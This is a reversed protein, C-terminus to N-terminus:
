ITRDCGEGQSVPLHLLDMGEVWSKCKEAEIYTNASAANYV